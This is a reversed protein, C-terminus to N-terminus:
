MHYYVHKLAMEGEYKLLIRAPYLLRPELNKEKVVKLIDQWERRTQLPEISLDATIM